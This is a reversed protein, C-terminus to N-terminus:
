RDFAGATEDLLDSIAAAVRVDPLSILCDSRRSGGREEPLPDVDLPGEDRVYRRELPRQASREM